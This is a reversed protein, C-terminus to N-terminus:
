DTVFRFEQWKGNFCFYVGLNPKGVIYLAIAQYTPHQPLPKGALESINDLIDKDFKKIACCYYYGPADRSKLRAVGGSLRFMSNPKSVVTQAAATSKGPFFLVHLSDSRVCIVALDEQAPKCFEGRIVTHYFGTDEMPDFQPIGYGREALWGAIDRPLDAVERPDLLMTDGAAEVAEPCGPDACAEFVNGASDSALVLVPKGAPERKPGTVDNLGPLPGILRFAVGAKWAAFPGFYQCFIRNIGKEAGRGYVTYVVAVENGARLAVPRSPEGCTELRAIPMRAWHGVANSRHLWLLPRGETDLSSKTAAVLLPPTDSGPSPRCFNIHDDAIQNGCAVIEAQAWASDPAGDLHRSAFFCETQQDSWMVVMRGAVAAVACIEDESLGEALTITKGSIGSFPDLRRVLIRRGAPSDAPWGAWFDGRSDRDITATEVVSNEQWVFPGGATEYRERSADWALAAFALQSEGATVAVVLSDDAWVDAHGPLSSLVSDLHEAASWAGNEDRRWIRSGGRADPLWCWWNGQAYWLKSQPKDTTPYAIGTRIVPRDTAAPLACSAALSFLAAIFIAPLIYLSKANFVPM